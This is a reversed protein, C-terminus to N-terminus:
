AMPNLMYAKRRPKGAIVTGEPLGAIWDHKILVALAQDMVKAKRTGIPGRQLIMETAFGSGPELNNKLWDLLNQAHAVADENTGAVCLYKFQQLHYRVIGCANAMIAESVISATQDEYLTMIAALRCAHEPAKGAFSSIDAAWMGRGLQPEIDDHFAVCTEFAGDSLTLSKEALDELTTRLANATVDQFEQVIADDRPDSRRYRRNGMNSEPWAPLMRALFGQGLMFENGFSQPILTPQFMLNLTTPTPPVYGDGEQTVRPRIFFAGDWLKSIIGCTLAMKEKSMSHGGFFTAAEDSVWGLFGAGSSIAKFAGEITPETVLFNPCSPRPPKEEGRDLSAVAHEHEQIQQTYEERLELVTQTVGGMAWGDTASKREGSLAILVFFSAANSFSSGLTQVKARSAFTLSTAALVSQAAIAVPAQTKNAIAEVVERLGPTLCDIPYPIAPAQAHPLPSPEAWDPASTGKPLKVRTATKAETPTAKPPKGGVLRQFPSFFFHKSM